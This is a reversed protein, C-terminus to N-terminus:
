ADALTTTAQAPAQVTTPQTSSALLSSMSAACQRSVSLAKGLTEGDTFKTSLVLTQGPIRLQIVFGKETAIIIYESAGMTLERAVADSLAQMSSAMSAMRGSIPSSGALSVVEFGDDTVVAAYVLSRSAANMEDLVRTGIAIIAPDRHAAESM